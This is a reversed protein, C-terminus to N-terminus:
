VRTIGKELSTSPLRKSLRQAFRKNYKRGIFNLQSLSSGEVALPGGGREPSAKWLLLPFLSGQFPLQCAFRSQPTGKGAYKMTQAYIRLFLQSLLIECNQVEFRPQRCDVPLGM